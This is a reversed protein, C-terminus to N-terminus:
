VSLYYLSYKVICTLAAINPPALEWLIKRIQWTYVTNEAIETILEDITNPEPNYDEPSGHRIRAKYQAKLKDTGSDLIISAWLAVLRYTLLALLLVGVPISQPPEVSIGLGALSASGLTVSVSPDTFLMIASIFLIITRHKSSAQDLEGVNKYLWSRFTNWQNKLM